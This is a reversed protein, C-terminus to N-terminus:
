TLWEDHVRTPVMLRAPHCEVVVPSFGEVRYATVSGGLALAFTQVGTSLLNNLPATNAMDRLRRGISKGAASHASHLRSMARWIREADAGLSVADMLIQWDGRNETRLSREGLWNQITQPNAASCGRKRLEASAARLTPYELVWARVRTKWLRQLQRLENARAGLVEDALPVILDGGGSTRLVIVHGPDLDGVEVRAVRQAAPALPDLLWVQRDGEEPLLVAERGALVAARARVAEWPEVDDGKSLERSVSAWDIPTREDDADIELTTRLAPMPRVRMAVGGRSGDLVSRRPERERYWAWKLVICNTARPSTLVYQHDAYWYLPGVVILQDIPDVNAVEHRSLVRIDPRDVGSSGLHRKVVGCCEGIPLLVAGRARKPLEAVAHQPEGDVTTTVCETLDAPSPQPDSKQIIEVVADRLPADDLDVLKRGTAVVTSGLEGAEEGGYVRLPNLNRELEDLLTRVGLDPHSFPLPVTTALNRARRAPYLFERWGTEDDATRALRSLDYVAASLAELVPHEVSRWSLAARSAVDYYADTQALTAYKV